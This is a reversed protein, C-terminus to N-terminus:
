FATTFTKNNVIQNKIELNNKIENIVQRQDKLKVICVDFKM